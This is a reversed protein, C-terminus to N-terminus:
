TSLDTNLYIEGGINIFPIIRTVRATIKSTATKRKSDNNQVLWLALWWGCALWWGGEGGRWGCGGEGGRWGGVVREVVAKVVVVDVLGWKGLYILVFLMAEGGDGFRRWKAGAM